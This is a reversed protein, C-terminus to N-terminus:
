RRGGVRRMMRELSEALEAREAASMGDILDLLATHGMEQLGIVRDRSQALATEAASRDFPEARIAQQVDRLAMGFARREDRLSIGQERVLGVLTDRDDRDLAAAFPGLGLTRLAPAGRRDREADDDGPRGGLFAGGILGAVAVNVALSLALLIKLGRGARPKPPRDVPDSM